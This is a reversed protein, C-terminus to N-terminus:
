RKQTTNLPSYNNRLAEPNNADCSSEEVLRFPYNYGQKEFVITHDSDVGVIAASHHASAAYQASFLAKEKFQQVLPLGFRDIAKRLSLQQTVLPHDHDFPHKSPRLATNTDRMWAVTAHCNMNRLYHYAVSGFPHADIRKQQLMLFYIKRAFVGSLSLVPEVHDKRGIEFADEAQEEAAKRRRIWYQSQEACIRRPKMM